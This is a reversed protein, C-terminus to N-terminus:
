LDFKISQLLLVICDSRPAVACNCFYLLNKDSRQNFASIQDSLEYTIKMTKCLIIADANIADGWGVFEWELDSPKGSKENPLQAQAMIGCTLLAALLFLKKFSYNIM